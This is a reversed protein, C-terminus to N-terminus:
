VRFDSLTSSPPEPWQKEGHVRCPCDNAARVGSGSPSSLRFGISGLGPKPKPNLAASPWFSSLYDMSGEACVRLLGNYTLLDGLM